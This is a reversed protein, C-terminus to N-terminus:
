AHVYCSSLLKFDFDCYRCAPTQQGLRLYSPSTNPSKNPSYSVRGSVQLERDYCIVKHLNSSISELGARTCPTRAGTTTSPYQIQKADTPSNVETPQKVEKEEEKEEEKTGALRFGAVAESRGLPQIIHLIIINNDPNM